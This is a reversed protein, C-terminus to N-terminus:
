WSLNRWWRGHKKIARRIARETTCSHVDNLLKPFRHGKYLEAEECHSWGDCYGMGGVKTNNKWQRNRSLMWFAFHKRDIFGDRYACFEDFQLSFFRTFYRYAAQEEDKDLPLGAQAKKEIAENLEHERKRLEDFRAHFQMTTDSKKLAKNLRYTMFLTLILVCITLFPAVALALDNWSDIGLPIGFIKTGSLTSM